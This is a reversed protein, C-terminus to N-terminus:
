EECERKAEQHLKKVEDTIGWIVFAIFGLVFMTKVINWLNSWFSEPIISIIFLVIITAVLGLIFYGVAQLWGYIIKKGM